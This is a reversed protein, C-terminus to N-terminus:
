IRPELTPHLLRRLAQTCDRAFNTERSYAWKKNATNWSLMAERWTTGDPKRAAFLALAVHKESLARYRPGLFRARVKRYADVVERPSLAPDVTLTIRSMAEFPCTWNMEVHLPSVRPIMDTLVFLVAQAEQWRYHKALRAALARLSGLVGREAVPQLRRWNDDPVGYELFGGRPGPTPEGDETAQSKVWPEVATWPLLRGGLASNRFDKVGEDQRADEALLEAIALLRRERASPQSRAARRAKPEETIMSPANPPPLPKGTAFYVQRIHAAVDSASVSFPNSLAQGVWGISRAHEWMRDTVPEGLEESVQDRLRDESASIM